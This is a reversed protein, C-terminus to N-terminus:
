TAGTTLTRFEADFSHVGRAKCLAWLADLCDAAASVQGNRTFLLRSIDITSIRDIPYTKPTFAYANQNWKTGGTTEGGRVEIV